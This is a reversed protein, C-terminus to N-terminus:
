SPEHRIAAQDLTLRMDDEQSGFGLSEYLPRGADSARLWIRHVGAARAEAILREILAQALGIHRAEPRTSVNLIYAEVGNPNAPVPPHDFWMLAATAAPRGDLDAIFAVFDHGIHKDLWTESEKLLAARDAMGSAAARAGHHAAAEIDAWMAFRLELLTSRDEIAVPRIRVRDPDVKLTM